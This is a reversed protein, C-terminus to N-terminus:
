PTNLTDLTLNIEAFETQYTIRWDKCTYINNSWQLPYVGRSHELLVDISDAKQHTTTSTIDIKDLKPNIPEPRRDPFYGLQPSRILYNRTITPPTDPILDLPTPTTIKPVPYATRTEALDLILETLRNDDHIIQTFSTVRWQKLAYHPRFNWAFTSVGSATDITSILNEADQTSVLYNLRVSKLSEFGSQQKYGESFPTIVPEAKATIEIPYYHYTPIELM